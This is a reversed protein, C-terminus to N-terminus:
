SQAVMRITRQLAREAQDIIAALQRGTLSLLEKIEPRPAAGQTKQLLAAQEKALVLGPKLYHPVAQRKQSEIAEVLLVRAAVASRILRSTEDNGNLFSSVEGASLLLSTDGVRVAGPMGKRTTGSLQKRIRDAVENLNPPPVEGPEATQPAPTTATAPGAVAPIKGTSTGGSVAAMKGTSSAEPAAAIKGTSSGAPVAAIRGTSSAAAPAAATAVPSPPKPPAAAVNAAVPSPQAAVAPKISPPSSSPRTEVPKAEPPRDPALRAMLASVLTKMQNVEAEFTQRLNSIEGSLEQLRQQVNAPAPGVTAVAPGKVAREVAFRVQLLIEYSQDTSYDISPQKWEQVLARLDALSEQESLRAHTCDVAQVGRAELKDLGEIVADLDRSVLRIFGRRALYNFRTFAVLASPSFYKSGAASKLLRAPEIIRAKLAHVNECHAIGHILDDLPKLWELILLPGEGIVPELVEAVEDMSLERDQFSPPACVSFYQSVLFDVKDRDSDSRQAKALHRGILALLKSESYALGVNHLLQRFQHVQIREDMECLWQEVRQIVAPESEDAIGDLSEYPPKALDFQTALAVYIPYLRRTARWQAAIGTGHRNVSLM